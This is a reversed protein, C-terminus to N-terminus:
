AKKMIVEVRMSKPCNYPCSFLAAINQLRFAILTSTIIFFAYNLCETVLRRGIIEIQTTDNKKTESKFM